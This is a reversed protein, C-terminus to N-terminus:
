LRCVSRVCLVEAADRSLVFAYYGVRRVFAVYFGLVRCVDAADRPMVFTVKFAFKGVFPSMM